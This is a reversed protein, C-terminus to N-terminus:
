IVQLYSVEHFFYACLVIYYLASLRIKLHLNHSKPNTKDLGPYFTTDPEQMNPLISKPQMFLRSVEQLDTLSDSESSCIEVM